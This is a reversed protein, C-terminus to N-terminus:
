SMTIVWSCQGMLSKKCRTINARYVPSNNRKQRGGNRGPYKIPTTMPLNGIMGAINLSARTLLLSQNAMLNLSLGLQLPTRAGGNFPTSPFDKSPSSKSLNSPKAAVDTSFVTKGCLKKNSSTTSLRCTTFITSTKKQKEDHLRRKLQQWRTKSKRGNSNGPKQSAGGQKDLM